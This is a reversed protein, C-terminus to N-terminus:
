KTQSLIYDVCEKITVDSKTYIPKSDPISQSHNINILGKTSINIAIDSDVLGYIFSITSNPPFYVHAIIKNEYLCSYWTVVKLKIDFPIGWASEEFVKKINNTIFRDVNFLDCSLHYENVDKM